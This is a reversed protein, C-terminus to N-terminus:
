NTISLRGNVERIIGNRLMLDIVANITEAIKPGANSFGLKRAAITPIRDKPLSFEENIVEKVANMVERVPIETITRPSPSRYATYDRAAAESIWLSSDGGISLPDRYLRAAALSVAKQINAGSHGFGFIRALRKCLYSETVPQEKALIQRIVKANYSAEPKFQAKDIVPVDVEAEIYTTQKTNTPDVLISSKKINDPDFSAM